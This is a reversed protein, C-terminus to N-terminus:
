TDVTAAFIVKDGILEYRVTLLFDFPYQERTAESSALTLVIKSDCSEKLEFESRLAFGHQRIAYEKGKYIAKKDKINGCLPFLVPAHDSWGKGSTNQWLLERGDANKLSTLEAGLTSVTAEYFANKIVYQM